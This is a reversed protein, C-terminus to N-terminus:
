SEYNSFQRNIHTNGLWVDSIIRADDSREYPIVRVINNEQLWKQLEGKLTHDSVGKLKIFWTGEIEIVNSGVLKTVKYYGPEFNLNESM